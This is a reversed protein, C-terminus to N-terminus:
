KKYCAVFAKWQRETLIGNLKRLFKAHCDKLAANVKEKLQLERLEKQFAKRIREIRQQFEAKTIKGDKLLQAQEAALDKYKAALKAHIARARHVASANCDNYDKLAIRLQRMQASDLKLGKLCRMFSHNKIDDRGSSHRGSLTENEDLDDSNVLYDVSIGENAAVMENTADDYLIVNDETETQVALAQIETESSNNLAPNLNLQEKRCGIFALAMIGFALAAKKFNRKM